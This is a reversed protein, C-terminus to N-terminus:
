IIAWYERDVYICYMGFYACPYRKQRWVPRSKYLFYKELEGHVCKSLVNSVNSCQLQRDDYIYLFPSKFSCESKHVEAWKKFNAQFKQGCTFCIAICNVDRRKSFKSFTTLKRETIQISNGTHDWCSVVFTRMRLIELSYIQLCSSSREQRLM